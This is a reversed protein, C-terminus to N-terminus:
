NAAPGLVGRNLLIARTRLFHANAHLDEYPNHRLFKYFDHLQFITILEDLMRVRRHGTRIILNAYSARGRKNYGSVLFYKHVDRRTKHVTDVELFALTRAIDLVPHGMGVKEFDLIGSIAPEGGVTQFLINSRVFDMHLPQRRPVQSCITLVDSTFNLAANNPPVLGLKQAIASRVDPRAYYSRMRRLATLYEATVDPLASPGRATRMDAHMNSLTTGLLALHQRTYAEWPIPAGPLYTYLAAYRIQRGPARIAVIRPDLTRRAPWGQDALHNSVADARTIRERMGAESKYLILNAIIRGNRLVPYSRNRYGTQVDGITAPGLGYASLIRLALDHERSTVAAIAQARM